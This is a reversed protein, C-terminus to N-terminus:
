FSSQYNAVVDVCSPCIRNTSKPLKSFFNKHCKLCTRAITETRQLSPKTVMFHPIKSRLFSVTVEYCKAISELSPNGISIKTLIDEIESPTFHRTPKEAPEPKTIGSLETNRLGLETRKARVAKKSRKPDLSEGIAKDRWGLLRKEELLAIDEKSWFM